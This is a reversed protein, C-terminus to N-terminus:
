IVSDEPIDVEVSVWQSLSIPLLNLEVLPGPCIEERDKLKFWIANFYMGIEVVQLCHSSTFDSKLNDM